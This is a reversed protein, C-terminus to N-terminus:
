NRIKYKCCNKNITNWSWKKISKEEVVIENTENIKQKQQKPEPEWNQFIQKM